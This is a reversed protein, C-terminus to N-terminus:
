KESEMIKGCSGRKVKRAFMGVSLSAIPRAVEMTSHHRGNGGLPLRGQQGIFVGRGGMPGSGPVGKLVGDRYCVHPCMYM